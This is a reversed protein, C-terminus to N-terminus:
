WMIKKKFFITKHEKQDSHDQHEEQDDDPDLMRWM